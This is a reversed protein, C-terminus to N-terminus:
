SGHMFGVGVLQFSARRSWAHRRLGRPQGWRWLSTTPSIADSPLSRSMPCHPLWRFRELFPALAQRERDSSRVGGGSCNCLLLYYLFATNLIHGARSLYRSHDADLQVALQHAPEASYDRRAWRDHLVGGNGCRCRLLAPRYSFPEWWVRGSHDADLQVALQHAHQPPFDGRIMLVISSALILLPMM